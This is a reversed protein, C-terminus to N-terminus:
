AFLFLTYPDARNGLDLLQLLAHSEAQPDPTVTAM